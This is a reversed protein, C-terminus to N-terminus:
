DTAQRVTERRLAMSLRVVHRAIRDGVRVVDGIRFEFRAVEAEDTVRRRYSCERSGSSAASGRM